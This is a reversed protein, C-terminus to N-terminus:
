SVPDDVMGVLGAPFDFACDGFGNALVGGDLDVFVAKDGVKNEGSPFADTCIGDDGVETGGLESSAGGEEGGSSAAFDVVVGGVWSNGGSVSDPKGVADACFDFVHFELLEVGGSQFM